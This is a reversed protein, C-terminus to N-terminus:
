GGSLLRFGIAANQKRLAREAADVYSKNWRSNEKEIIERVLNLQELTECQDIQAQFKRWYESKLFREVLETKTPKKFQSPM